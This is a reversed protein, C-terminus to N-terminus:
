DLGAIMGLPSSVAGQIRLRCSGSVAEFALDRSTYRALDIQEGRQGCRQVLRVLGILRSSTLSRQWCVRDCNPIGGGVALGITSVHNRIERRRGAQVLISDYERKRYM